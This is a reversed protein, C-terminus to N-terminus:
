GKTAANTAATAAFVVFRKVGLRPVCSFLSSLETRSSAAAFTEYSRCAVFLATRCKPGDTVFEDGNENYTTVSVRCLGDRPKTCRWLPFAFRVYRACGSPHAFFLYLVPSDLFVSDPM